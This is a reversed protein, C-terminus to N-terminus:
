RTYCAHGSDYQNAWTVCMGNEDVSTVVEHVIYGTSPVLYTWDFGERSWHSETVQFIEGDIDLVSTFTPVGAVLEITALGDGENSWTGIVAEPKLQGGGHKPGCALLFLFLVSTRM